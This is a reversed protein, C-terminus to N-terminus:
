KRHLRLARWLTLSPMHGRTARSLAEVESLGFPILNLVREEIRM